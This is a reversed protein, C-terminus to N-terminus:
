RSKFLEFSLLHPFANNLAHKNKPTITFTLQFQKLEKANFYGMSLKM